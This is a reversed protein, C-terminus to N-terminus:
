PLLARHGYTLLLDQVASNTDTGEATFHVEPVEMVNM